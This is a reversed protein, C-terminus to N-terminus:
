ARRCRRGPSASWRTWRRVPASARGPRATSRRRGSCTSTTSSRRRRRKRRASSTARAAADPRRPACTSSGLAAPDARFAQDAQVYVRYARNNFDFDNVYQSGLYIQLASTVESLPVGLALARERDIEVILQPDNATFSSFLGALRPSANGAGVMAFTAAALANIDTGSQDLVQFEFGGFQGLGPISPPAFPVVIAGSIGFLPGSVRALVTKLEHDTGRREVFPKLSSFILGQNPAAGSFSFGM